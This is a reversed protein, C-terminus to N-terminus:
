TMLEHMMVDEQLHLRTSASGVSLVEAQEGWAEIERVLAM